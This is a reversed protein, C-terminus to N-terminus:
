SLSLSYRKTTKFAGKVNRPLGCLLFVRWKRGDPVFPLSTLVGAGKGETRGDKERDAAFGDCDRCLGAGFGLVCCCVGWERREHNGAVPQRVAASRRDM